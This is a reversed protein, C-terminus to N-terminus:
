SDHKMKVTEEILKDILLSSHAIGHFSKFDSEMYGHHKMVANETSSVIDNALESDKTIEKEM